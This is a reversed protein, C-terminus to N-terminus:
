WAKPRQSPLPALPELQVHAIRAIHLVVKETLPEELTRRLAPAGRGIAIRLVAAIAPPELLGEVAAVRGHGCLM